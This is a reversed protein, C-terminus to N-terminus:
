RLPIAWFIGLMSMSASMKSRMPLSTGGRCLTWSDRLPGLSAGHACLSSRPQTTIPFAHKFPACLGFLIAVKLVRKSSLPRGENISGQGLRKYRSHSAAKPSADEAVQWFFPCKILSRNSSLKPVLTNTRVFSSLLGPVETSSRLNRFIISSPMILSRSDPLQVAGRGSRSSVCCRGSLLSFASFRNFDVHRRKSLFGVM